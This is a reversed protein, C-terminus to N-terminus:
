IAIDYVSTAPENFLIANDWILNIDLNIEEDTLYKNGKIKLEITSIDM